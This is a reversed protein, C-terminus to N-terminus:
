GPAHVEAFLHRLAVRCSTSVACMSGWALVRRIPPVIRRPTGDTGSAAHGVVIRPQEVVPDVTIGALLVVLPV